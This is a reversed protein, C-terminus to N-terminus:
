FSLGTRIQFPTNPPANAANIAADIPLSMDGPVLPLPVFQLHKHPQSAGSNKGSNYFLLGDIEQTVRSAAEFDGANLLDTQPEYEKTVPM